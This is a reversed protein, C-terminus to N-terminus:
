EGVFLIYCAPSSGEMITDVRTVVVKDENGTITDGLEPKPIVTGNIARYSLVVRRNGRQVLTVTTDTDRYNFFYGLVAYNTETNSSTGTTPSYSGETVKTYTLPQGYDKLLCYFDNGIM